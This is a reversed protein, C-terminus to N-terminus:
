TKKMRCVLAGIIIVAVVGGAMIIIMVPFAPQVSVTVYDVASNGSEDIVTLSANYIGAPFGDVPIILSEGTSNWAGTQLLEGDLYVQYADPYLDNMTWTITIGQSGETFEVDDPHSLTPNTTDEVNVMICSVLTDGFENFIQLTFNHSGLELEDCSVEVDAGDWSSNVLLAGDVFRLYRYPHYSFASWLAINGKTGGEYTISGASSISFVTEINGWVGHSPELDACKRVFVWDIDYTSSAPGNGLIYMYVPGTLDGDTSNKVLSSDYYYLNSISTYDIRLSRNAGTWDTSINTSDTTPTLGDYAVVWKAGDDHRRLAISYYDSVAWSAGESPTTNHLWIGVINGYGSEPWPAFVSTEVSIGSSFIVDTAIGQLWSNDNTQSYTGGSESGAPDGCHSWKDDDFSADNFDDYFIFAAEGDSTCSADPNGYYIYIVQDFDLTDTVEVWFVANSSDSNEEMWYDLETIGDSDVFRIDSFDSQCYGNCFVTNNIDVGTGYDVVIKVQYNHGAGLSGEIQHARRFEWGPLWNLGDQPETEITSWLAHAPEFHVFKRIYYDDQFQDHDGAVACTVMAVTYIKSLASGNEIDLSQATKAIGDIYPRYLSNTFDVAVEYEHWTNVFVTDMEYYQATGNNTAWDNEHIYGVYALGEADDIPNFFGEYAILPYKYNFTSEVRVWSHFMVDTTILSDLVTRCWRDNIQANGRAAYSGRKVVSSQVSWANDSTDWRNLDNNEFDDFFIFTAEGDSISLAESNGFYVFFSADFDLNDQVRIWFTANDFAFYSERWHSLLTLGDNDTFRLDSFDPNVYSNCYIDTGDDTGSGYHVTVNVQYDTGAGVSGLILHSKRYSWGSLWDEGTSEAIVASDVPDIASVSFGSNDSLFVPSLFLMIVIFSTPIKLLLGGVGITESFLAM